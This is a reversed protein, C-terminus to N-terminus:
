TGSGTSAPGGDAEEDARYPGGGASTPPATHVTSEIREAMQVTGHFTGGSIEFRNRLALDGRPLEVLLSQLESAFAEREREPLSELLTELREQWIGEHRALLGGIVESDATALVAATRDLQALARREEDMGGRGVLRALRARLHMWADTGAAQVIATGGAAALAVLAESM